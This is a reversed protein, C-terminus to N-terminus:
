EGWIRVDHRSVKGNAHFTAENSFVLRKMFKDEDVKEQVDVCFQRRKRKDEATITHVLLLKYPKMTLHKRMTKGFQQQHFGLKWVQEEYHNQQAKCSKKVFM